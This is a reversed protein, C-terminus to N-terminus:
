RGDCECGLLQLQVFQMCAVSVHLMAHMSLCCDHVCRFFLPFLLTLCSMLPHVTPWHPYMVLQIALSATVGYQSRLCIQSLFKDYTMLIAESPVLCAPPMCPASLCLLTLSYPHATYIVHGAGGDTNRLRVRDHSPGDDAGRSSFSPVAHYPRTTCHM